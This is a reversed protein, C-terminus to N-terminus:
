ENDSTCKADNLNMGFGLFEFGDGVASLFSGELVADVGELVYGLTSAWNSTSEASGGQM